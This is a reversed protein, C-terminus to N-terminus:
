LPVASYNCTLYERSWFTFLPEASLVRGWIDIICRVTICTRWFDSIGYFQLKDYYWAFVSNGGTCKYPDNNHHVSIGTQLQCFRLRVSSTSLLEKMHVAIKLTTGVYIKHVWHQRTVDYPTKSRPLFLELNQIAAQCCWVIGQLLTSEDDILWWYRSKEILILIVTNYHM